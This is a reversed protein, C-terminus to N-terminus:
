GEWDGTILAYLLAQETPMRNAAQRWVVSQPGDIVEAQVESGRHAPLCHMFVARHNALSMLEESVQYPALEREREAAEAEEGMSTWVDTYVVDAGAVAVRPDHVLSVDGAVSPEYGPPTAITLEIGTLGAAEVLSNAVNNGDGVFAVKIGDLTENVERITLLDALLQCPHHEDTLANVIPITSHEALEDVKAQAFTRITVAAAYSSLTRATDAITEGRGLQLEDPRIIQDEMGLRSAATAFSIRTRTSPKDYISVLVDGELSHVWGYPHEKMRAALDLLQELEQVRLDGLRLLHRTRTRTAM